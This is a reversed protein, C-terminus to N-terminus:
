RTQHAQRYWEFTKKLGSQLEFRPSFDILSEALRIDAVSHRIDGPRPGATRSALDVGALDRVLQWLTNVTVARGTGINIARGAAAPTTAASVIARVVDAVYVFDRSQDGDGYITPEEGAVAKSMFVSIVGSYPSSPDQRPGYVNFFRLSSAPVDYLDTYLRAYYEGTLKHVAYPSLPCPLLREHKPLQPDDGYIASSSAFVVSRVGCDRAAAMVNLTGLDNIAASELPYEVSEPVSVLAALHFVVDCNDVAMKVDGPNRIDGRHIDIKGELGSLNDIRGSSLNDLVTVRCRANVLAATLHSGIFGAGGTVLARKFGLTM